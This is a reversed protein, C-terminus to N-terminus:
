DTKDSMESLKQMAEDFPMEQNAQIQNDSAEMRSADFLKMQERSVSINEPSSKSSSDLTVDLEVLVESINPKAYKLNLAGKAALLRGTSSYFYRISNAKTDITIGKQEIALWVKDVITIEGDKQFSYEATFPTSDEVEKNTVKGSSTLPLPVFLRSLLAIQSRMFEKPFDDGLFHQAQKGDLLTVSKKGLLPAYYSPDVIKDLITLQSITKWESVIDKAANPYQSIVGESRILIKDLPKKDEGFVRQRVNLVVRYDGQDELPLEKLKLERASMKAEDGKNLLLLVLVAILGLALAGWLKKM